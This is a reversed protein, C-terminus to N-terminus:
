NPSACSTTEAERTSQLLLLVKQATGADAAASVAEFSGDAKAEAVKTAVNWHEIYYALSRASRAYHPAIASVWLSLEDLSVPIQGFLDLLDM